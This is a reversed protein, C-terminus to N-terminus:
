SDCISHKGSVNESMSDVLYKAVNARSVKSNLLANEEEAIIKGSGIENTLGVPRIIHYGGTNSVVIEEQLEHDKMAKSIFDKCIFKLSGAPDVVKM